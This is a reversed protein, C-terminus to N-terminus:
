CCRICTEFALLFVCSSNTLFKPCNNIRVAAFDQGKIRGHYQHFQCMRSHTKGVSKSFTINTQKPSFLSKGLAQQVPPAAWNKGKRANLWRGPCHGRRWHCKGRTITYVCVTTMFGNLILQEKCTIGMVSKAHVDSRVCYNTVNKFCYSGLHPSCFALLLDRQLKCPKWNM